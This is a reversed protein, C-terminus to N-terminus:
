WGRRQRLWDEAVRAYWAQHARLFPSGDPAAESSSFYFYGLLLALVGDIMEEDAPSVLGSRALLDDGNLGDGHMAIAVTLTDAWIPGRTPFNWDCVWVRGSMDILINDDRLDSHVLTVGELELGALALSRTQDGIDPLSGLEAIRDFYVNTRTFFEQVFREWRHGAPAPTLAVSLDRVAALVLDAEAALWPRRPPRGGVDDFILVLWSGHRTAIEVLHQLRPAPVALPLLELRQAETRYAEVLWGRDSSAAKVFVGRGDALRLRSAFGPTYGSGQSVATRVPSGVVAEIRERVEVPLEAWRPRQATAATPVTLPHLM